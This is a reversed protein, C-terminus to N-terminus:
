RVVLERSPPTLALWYVARARWLRALACRSHLPNMRRHALAGHAPFRSSVSCYKNPPRQGRGPIGPRCPASARSTPARPRASAGRPRATPAGPRVSRSAPETLSNRRLAANQIRHARARRARGPTAGPRVARGPAYQASATRRSGCLAERLAASTEEVPVAPVTTPASSRPGASGYGSSYAVGGAAAGRKTTAVARPECRCRAVGLAPQRAPIWAVGLWPPPTCGLPGGGHLRAVGLRRQYARAGQPDGRCALGLAPAGRAVADRSGGLGRAHPAGPAAGVARVSRRRCRGSPLASHQTSTTAAAPMEAHVASASM